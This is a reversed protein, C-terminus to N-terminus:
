GAGPYASNVGGSSVEALPPFFRRNPATSRPSRRLDVEEMGFIHSTAGGDLSIDPLKLVYNFFDQCMHGLIFLM